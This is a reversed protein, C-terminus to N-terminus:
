AIKVLTKINKEIKTLSDHFSSSSGSKCRSSFILLRSMLPMKSRVGVFEIAPFRFPEFFTYQAISSISSSCDYEEYEHLFLPKDETLRIPLLLSFKFLCCFCSALPIELPFGKGVQTEVLYDTVRCQFVPFHHEEHTSVATLIPFVLM